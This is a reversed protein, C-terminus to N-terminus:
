RGLKYAEGTILTEVGRGVNVVGTYLHGTVSSTYVIATEPSEPDTAQYHTLFCAPRPIVFFIVCRKLLTYSDRSPVSNQYRCSANVAAGFHHTPSMPRHHDIMPCKMNAIARINCHGTKGGVM